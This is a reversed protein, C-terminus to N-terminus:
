EVIRLSPRDKIRELCDMTYRLFSRTADSYEIAVPHTLDDSDGVMRLAGLVFVLANDLREQETM